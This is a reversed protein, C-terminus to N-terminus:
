QQKEQYRKKGLEALEEWTSATTQKYDSCLRQDKHDCLCRCKGTTELQTCTGYRSQIYHALEQATM